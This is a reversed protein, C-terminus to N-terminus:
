RPRVHIGSGLPFTAVNAANIEAQLRAVDQATFAEIGMEKPNLGAQIMKSVAAFRKMMGVKILTSGKSDGDHLVMVAAAKVDNNSLNQNSQQFIAGARLAFAAMAGQRQITEDAVGVSRLWPNVVQGLVTKWGPGEPLGKGTAIMEPIITQELVEMTKIVKMADKTVLVNKSQDKKLLDTEIEDRTQHTFSTVQGPALLAKPVAGGGEKLVADLTPIRKGEAQDKLMQQISGTLATIEGKEEVKVMKRITEAMAPSVNVLDTFNRVKGLAAALPAPTKPNMRTLQANAYAAQDLENTTPKSSLERLVALGKAVADPNTGSAMADILPGMTMGSLALATLDQINKAASDASPKVTIRADQKVVLQGTKRDMWFVGGGGPILHIQELNQDAKYLEAAFAPVLAQPIGAELLDAMRQGEQSGMRRLFTAGEARMRLDKVAEGALKIADPNRFSPTTAMLTKMAEPTGTQYLAMAYALDQHGAEELNRKRYTERLATSQGAYLEPHSMERFQTALLHLSDSLVDLKSRPTPPAPLPQQPATQPPRGQPLEVGSPIAGPTIRQLNATEGIDSGAIVPSMPLAQDYDLPLSSPVYGPM